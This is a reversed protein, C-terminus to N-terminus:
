QGVMFSSLEIEKLLPKDAETQEPVYTDAFNGQHPYQQIYSCGCRGTAEFIV